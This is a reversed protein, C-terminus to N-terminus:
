DKDPNFFIRPADEGIYKLKVKIPKFLIPPPVLRIDADFVSEEQVDQLSEFYHILNEDPIDESNSSTEYMAVTDNEEQDEQDEQRNLMYAFEWGAGGKDSEPFRQVDQVDSELSKQLGQVICANKAQEAFKDRDSNSPAETQLTIAM